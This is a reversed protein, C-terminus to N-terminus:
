GVDPEEVVQALKQLSSASGAENDKLRIGRPIDECVVTVDTGDGSKALDWTVRMKGSMGPQETEFEVVQAVREDPVLQVFRGHFTDTDETTKGGPGGAPDQYIMSMRFRGGERPEFEHVVCRMSGPALWSAVIDRDVFAKYVDSRRARIHRSVRTMAKKTPPGTMGGSAGRM